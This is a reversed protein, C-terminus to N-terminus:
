PKIFGNMQEGIALSFGFSILLLIMSNTIYYRRETEKIIEECDNVLSNSCYITNQM